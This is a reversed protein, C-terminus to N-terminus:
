CSWRCPATRAEARLRRLVEQGPVHLDLLILDRDHEAALELRLQSRMGSILRGGPRGLRGAAPVVVLNPLVLLGTVLTYTVTRSVLRDLDWLRYRLVAVAVAVPVCLVAAYGAAAVLAGALLGVSTLAAGAAVWRLRQREVGVSARFRLVLSVLAAPPSSWHLVV